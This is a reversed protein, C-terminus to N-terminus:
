DEREEYSLKIQSEKVRYKEALEKKFMKINDTGIEENITIPSKISIRTVTYKM